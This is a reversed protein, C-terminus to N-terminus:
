DQPQIGGFSSLLWELKSPPPPTGGRRWAPGGQDDGIYKTEKKKPVSISTQNTNKNIWYRIYWTTRGDSNGWRAQKSKPQPMIYSWGQAQLDLALSIIRQDANIGQRLTTPVTTQSFVNQSIFITIILNIFLIYQRNMRM